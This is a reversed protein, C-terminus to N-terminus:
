KRKCIILAPFILCFTKKQYKVFFYFSKLWRTTMKKNESIGVVVRQVALAADTDASKPGRSACFYCELKPGRLGVRLSNVANLRVRLIAHRRSSGSDARAFRFVSDFTLSESERIPTPCQARRAVPLIPQPYNKAGDRRDRRPVGANLAIGADSESADLSGLPTVGSGHGPRSESDPAELDTAAEASCRYCGHM